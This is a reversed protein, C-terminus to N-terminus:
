RPAASYNLHRARPWPSAAPALTRWPCRNWCRAVSLPRRGRRVPGSQPDNRASAAAGADIRSGPDLRLVGDSANVLDPSDVAAPVRLRRRLHHHRPQDGERAAPTAADTYDRGYLYPQQLSKLARVTFGHAVTMNGEIRGAAWDLRGGNGALTFTGGLRGGPAAATGGLYLRFPSEVNQTGTFRAVSRNGINWSGSGSYKAGNSATVPAETTVLQAGGGIKLTGHQDFQVATINLTGHLLQVTGENLVHAPNVCCALYTIDNTGIATSILTGGPKIHLMSPNDIRLGGDGHSM